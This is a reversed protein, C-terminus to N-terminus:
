EGQFALFSALTAAKKPWRRACTAAFQAPTLVQGTSVTIKSSRSTARYEVGNGDTVTRTALTIKIKIEQPIGANPGKKPIRFQPPSQSIFFTKVDENMFVPPPSKMTFVESPAAPPTFKIPCAAAFAAALAPDQFGAPTPKHYKAPPQWGDTQDPLRQARLPPPAGATRSWPAPAADNLVRAATITSQYTKM